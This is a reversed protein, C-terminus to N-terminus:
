YIRDEYGGTLCLASNAAARSYRANVDGGGEEDPSYLGESQHEFELLSTSSSLLRAFRRVHYGVMDLDSLYLPIGTDSSTRM